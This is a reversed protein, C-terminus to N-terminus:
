MMGNDNKLFKIFNDIKKWIWGMINLSTNPLIFALLTFFATAYLVYNFSPFVAPHAKGIIIIVFGWIIVGTIFSALLMVFSSALRDGLTIKKDKM